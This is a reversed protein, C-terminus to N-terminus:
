FKTRYRTVQTVEDYNVAQCAGLNRGIVAYIQIVLMLSGCIWPKTIDIYVAKVKWTVHLFTTEM